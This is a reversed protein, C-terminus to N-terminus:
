KKLAMRQEVQDKAEFVDDFLERSDFVVQDILGELNMPLHFGDIGENLYSKIAASAERFIRDLHEQKERSDLLPRDAFLTVESSVRTEIRALRPSKAIFRIENEVQEDVNVCALINRYGDERLLWTQHDVYGVKTACLRHMRAPAGHSYAIGDLIRNVTSRIAIGRSGATFSWMGGSGPANQTWCSVGCLKTFALNCERILDAVPSQLRELRAQFDDESLGDTEAMRRCYDLANENATPLRGEWYSEFTRAFSFWLRGPSQARFVTKASPTVWSDHDDFAAFLDLFQHASMYRWIIEDGHPKQPESSM